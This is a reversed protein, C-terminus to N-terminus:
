HRTSSYAVAALKNKAAGKKILYKVADSARAVSLEL